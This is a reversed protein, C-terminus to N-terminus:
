DLDVAEAFGEPLNNSVWKGGHKRGNKATQTNRLFSTECVYTYNYPTVDNGDEDKTVRITEFGKM